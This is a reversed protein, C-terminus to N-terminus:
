FKTQFATDNSQEAQSFRRKEHAQLSGMLERIITLTSLDESQEIAAVVYAYKETLSILIKEVVFQDTVKEDYMRMQNVITMVRTQYEQIIESDKMKLNQFDRQLTQLNITRVNEEGHFEQELTDWAEKATSTSSIKLFISKGVSMHIKSLASADSRRAADLKRKEADSMGAENEPKILEKEVSTWLGEAKLFTRMKIKWYEYDEGDFFPILSSSSGGVAQSM